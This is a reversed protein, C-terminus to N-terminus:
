SDPKTLTTERTPARGSSYSDLVVNGDVVVAGDGIQLAVLEEGKAILGSLTTAYERPLDGAIKLVAHRAAGFAESAIEMLDRSPDRQLADKAFAVFEDVASTAGQDSHRASGAGDAVCAILTDDFAFHRSADQCPLNIQVHGTGIKSVGM